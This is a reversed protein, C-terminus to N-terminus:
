KNIKFPKAILMSNNLILHANKEHRDWRWKYIQSPRLDLKVALEKMKEKTWHPDKDFENQL